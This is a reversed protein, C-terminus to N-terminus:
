GASAYLNSLIVYNGANEPEIEPKVGDKKHKVLISHPKKTDPTDVVSTFNHVRCCRGTKTVEKERTERM